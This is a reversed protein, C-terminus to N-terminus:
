APGTEVEKERRRVELARAVAQKLADLDRLHVDHQPFPIEIGENRFAKAIALRLDSSVSLKRNVDPVFARLSFLLANDGFDEFVVMPAPLKLLAPSEEAIRTLIAIVKEPDTKYSVGIRIVLRGIPNTHTWNVVQGTILESNPIILSARDFTEIETARVNIRRVFGEQGNIVIWDGVKIPREVLLIIGSVFNNFIAQLGFGIGLSLAGAVIALQTFDFGAYSLAIIMSLAIGAYGVGLLISHSIAGDVRAPGLVSSQLWRQGLRTVFLLGLLLFGALLIRVPSVRYQGVEFGVVGLRLWDAIDEQAYGWTLLLVPLAALLLVLEILVVLTRTLYGTREHDLGLRTELLRGVPQGDESLVSAVRRIVVHAVYLALATAGILMIQTSIFRGLAVYGTLTTAVIALALIAIPLKLWRPYSQSPEDLLASERTALPVRVFGILLGAFALSTFTAHAVGIEIPLFLMRVVNGLLLDLALLAALLKILRLLKPASADAISVLPLESARSGFAVTAVASSGVFVAYSSLAALAFEGVVPTLLEFAALGSYLSGAAALPPVARALTGWFADGVRPFFESLGRGGSQARGQIYPLAGKTAGYAGASAVVVLVLLLLHEGIMLWWEHALYAVQRAARQLDDLLTRWTSVALPSGSRRMLDRAFITQRLNQVYGILQRTRVLALEATKIAGAVEAELASLRARETAISPAEPPADKAPAPGLKQLQATVADLLPRLEEEAAPAETEIRELENRLEALGSERDKAREIREVATQVDSALRNVRRALEAPFPSRQPSVAPQPTGQPQQPATQGSSSAESGGEEAHAVIPAAVSIALVGLCALWMLVWRVHVTPM